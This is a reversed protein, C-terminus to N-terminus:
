LATTAPHISGPAYPIVNPNGTRNRLRSGYTEPTLISYHGLRVGYSQSTNLRYHGLRVGYSTPAHSITHGITHGYTQRIASGYATYRDTAMAAAPAVLALVLLAGLFVVLLRKKMVREGKKVHIGHEVNKRIYRYVQKARRRCGL